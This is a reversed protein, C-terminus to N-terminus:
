EALARAWAATRRFGGFPYFHVGVIRREPREAAARALELVERDPSVVKALRFVTGPHRLLVSLSGGVGCARAYRILNRATTLGPLGVEVPLAP